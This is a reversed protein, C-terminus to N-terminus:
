RFRHQFITLQIRQFLSWHFKLQFKFIKMWSSANSFTTQFIAAMIDRGWQTLIRWGQSTVIALESSLVCDYISVVCHRLIHLNLDTLASIHDIGTPFNNFPFIKCKLLSTKMSFTQGRPKNKKKDLKSQNTIWPFICSFEDHVLSNTVGYAMMFNPWCQNLYHSKALHCWAM